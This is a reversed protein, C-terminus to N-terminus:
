TGWAVQLDPHDPGAPSWQQGAHSESMAAQYPGCGVRSWRKRVDRLVPQDPRSQDLPPDDTCIAGPVTYRGDIVLFLTGHAGIQQAERPGTRLPRPAGRDAPVLGGVVFVGVAAVPVAGRDLISGM